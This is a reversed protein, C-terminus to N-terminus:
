TAPFFFYIMLPVSSKEVIVYTVVEKGGEKQRAAGMAGSRFKTPGLFVPLSSLSELNRVGRPVAYVPEAASYGYKDGKETCVCRNGRKKPNACFNLKEACILENLLSNQM